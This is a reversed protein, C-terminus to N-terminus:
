VLKMCDRRSRELCGKTAWYLHWCILNEGDKSVKNTVALEAEGEEGLMEGLYCFKCVREQFMGPEVEVKECCREGEGAIGRSCRRCECIKVKGLSGKGGFM